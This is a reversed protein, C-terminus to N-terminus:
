KVGSDLHLVGMIENHMIVKQSIFGHHEDAVAMDHNRKGSPAPCQKRVAGYFEVISEAHENELLMEASASRNSTLWVVAAEIWDLNNLRILNGVRPEFRLFESLTKAILTFRLGLLLSKATVTDGKRNKGDIYLHRKAQDISANYLTHNNRYYEAVDILHDYFMKGIAIVNPSHLTEYMTMDSATLKQVFKRLEFGTIDMAINHTVAGVPMKVLGMFRVTDLTSSISKEWPLQIYVFRVDIDSGEHAYGWARSGAEVAFIIRIGHELEMEHLKNVVTSRDLLIM